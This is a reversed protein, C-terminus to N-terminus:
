IIKRYKGKSEKVLKTFGHKKLNNDSLLIKNSIIRTNVNCASIIRTIAEGCEPCKQLPSDSMRQIIEFGTRCFDCNKKRGGRGPQVSQYQYTPM